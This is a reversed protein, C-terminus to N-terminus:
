SPYGCEQIIKGALDEGKLLHFHTKMDRLSQDIMSQKQRLALGLGPHVKLRPDVGDELLSVLEVAHYEFSLVRTGRKILSFAFRYYPMGASLLLTGYFPLNVGPVVTIPIELVKPYGNRKGPEVSMEKWLADEDPLYPQRPALAWPGFDLLLSFFRKTKRAQRSKLYVMMKVLPFIFSPLVSCDYRYGNEALIKLITEDIEYGPARFGVMKVGLLDQVLRDTQEIEKRKESVSFRRFQPPHNFTHNGIEHGEQIIRRAIQLHYENELDKGIIFFTAKIGHRAFLELFRPIGKQYVADVTKQGPEASAHNLHYVSLYDRITDCDVSIFGYRTNM